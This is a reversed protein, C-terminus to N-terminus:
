TLLNSNADLICPCPEDFTSSIRLVAVNCPAMKGAGEGRKLKEGEGVQGSAGDRSGLRGAASQSKSSRIYSSCCALMRSTTTQQHPNAKLKHSATLM